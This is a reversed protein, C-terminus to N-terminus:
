GSTSHGVKANSVIICKAPASVARLGALAAAAAFVKDGDEQKCKGVKGLCALLSDEGARTERKIREAAACKPALPKYKGPPLRYRAALLRRATPPPLGGGGPGGGGDGSAHLGGGGCREGGGGGGGGAGGGTGSSIGGSSSGDADRWGAEGAEGGEVGGGLAEALWRALDADGGGAGEGVEGVEGEDEQLLLSRGRRRLLGLRRAGDAAAASADRAFPAWPNVAGLCRGRAEAVSRAPMEAKRSARIAAPTGPPSEGSEGSAAAPAAKGADAAPV